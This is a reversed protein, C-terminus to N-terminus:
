TPRHLVQQQLQDTAKRQEIEWNAQKSQRFLNEQEAISRYIMWAVIPPLILGSALMLVLGLTEDLPTFLKPSVYQMLIANIIQLCVIAVSFRFCGGKGLFLAAMLIIAAFGWVSAMEASPVLFIGFSPSLLLAFLAVYAGAVTQGRRQLIPYLATGLTSLGFLIALALLQPYQRFLLWLVGTGFALVGLGRALAQTYILAFQGRRDFIQTEILNRVEPDITLTEMSEREHRADAQRFFHHEPSHVTVYILNRTLVKETDATVRKPAYLIYPLPRGAGSQAPVAKKDNKM